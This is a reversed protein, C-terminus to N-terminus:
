PKAMVTYNAPSSQRNDLSQLVVGSVNCVLRFPAL